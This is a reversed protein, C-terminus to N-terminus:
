EAEAALRAAVDVIAKVAVGEPAIDIPANGLREADAVDADYPVAGLLPLPVAARISDIDVDDQVKNAVLHTGVGARVLRRATLLAKASPDAVVIVTRAFKAWGFMPQRTGAALDGVLGWGPRRFRELVYRFAVSVAPEIDDPLKGLALFAVGDPGRQAYRDVLVSPRLGPKVQWGKGEVRAALGAPLRACSQGLGLSLGLGPMTDVDMALVSRGSRALQRCVTGAILSKGSGGKGVFAIRLGPGGGV